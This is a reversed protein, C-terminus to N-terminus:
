IISQNGPAVSAFDSDDDTKTNCNNNELEDLKIVWFLEARKAQEQRAFTPAERQKKNDETCKHDDTVKTVIIKLM